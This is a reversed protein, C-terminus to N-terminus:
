RSLSNSRPPPMSRDDFLTDTVIGAVYPLPAGASREFDAPTDIDAFGEGGTVHVESTEGANQRLYGDIGIGAALARIAAVHRWAILAPHGRRGEFAPILITSSPRRNWTACLTRVVASDLFPIDGPTLLFADNPRPHFRDELWSLGHEVTTRMDPTAVTLECVDAGARRALPALTPDHPGTVVVVSNAGGDRLATIVRELMPRGDVPLALKPRGMRASRGAAPVIAAIM